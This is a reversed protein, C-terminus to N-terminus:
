YKEAHSAEFSLRASIRMKPRIASFHVFRGCPICSPIRHTHEGNENETVTKEGFWLFQPRRKRRPGDNQKSVVCPVTAVTSDESGTKTLNYMDLDIHTALGAKKAV